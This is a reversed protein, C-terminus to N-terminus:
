YGIRSDDEADRQIDRQRSVESEAHTRCVAWLVGRRDILGIAPEPCNKVDCPRGDRVRAPHGPDHPCGHAHLVARCDANMTCPAGLRMPEGTCAPCPRDLEDVHSSFETERGMTMAQAEAERAESSQSPGQEDRPQAADKGEGVVQEDM